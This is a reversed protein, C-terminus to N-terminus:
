FLEITFLNRITFAKVLWQSKLAVVVPRTFIGRYSTEHFNWSENRPFAVLRRTSFGRGTVPFRVKGRYIKAGEVRVVRPSVRPSAHLLSTIISRYRIHVHCDHYMRIYIINYAHVYTRVYTYVCYQMIIQYIYTHTHTVLEQRTYQM